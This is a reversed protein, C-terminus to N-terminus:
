VSQGPMRAAYEAPEYIKHAKESLGIFDRKHPLLGVGDAFRGKRTAM